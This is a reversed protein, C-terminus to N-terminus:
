TDLRRKASHREPLIVDGYTTLGKGELRGFSFSRLTHKNTTCTALLGSSDSCPSGKVRNFAKSSHTSTLLNERKEKENRQCITMTIGM